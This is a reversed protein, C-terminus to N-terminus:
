ADGSTVPTVPAAPADLDDVGMGYVHAAHAGSLRIMLGSGRMCTAIGDYNANGTKPHRYKTVVVIWGKADAADFDYTKGELDFVCGDIMDVLEEDTRGQIADCESGPPADAPGTIREWQMFSAAFLANALTRFIDPAQSPSAPPTSM